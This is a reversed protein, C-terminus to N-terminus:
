EDRGGALITFTLAKGGKFTVGLVRGAVDPGHRVADKGTFHVRLAVEKAADATWVQAVLGVELKAGGPGVGSFLLPAKDTLKIEHKEPPADREKSPVEVTFGKGDKAIAVVKGALSPPKRSIDEGGTVATITKAAAAALTPPSPTVPETGGGRALLG